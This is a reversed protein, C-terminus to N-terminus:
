GSRKLDAVIELATRRAEEPRVAGAPELWERFDGYRIMRRGGAASYSPLPRENRNIWRHVTAVDYGALRALEAVSLWSEDNIPRQQGALTSALRAVAVALERVSEDPHRVESM